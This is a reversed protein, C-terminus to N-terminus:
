RATERLLRAPVGAATVGDALDTVVAAGAGVTAWCGLRQGPRVVSGVGLLTGEGMHVRGALHAGPGVHAFSGIRCDHDITAATNVICHAGVLSDPQVVAGACVLTGEGLVVSPDVWAAPHVASIWRLRPFREALARRRRNDGVAIIAAQGPLVRLEDIIGRVPVGLVTREQAAPDDDFLGWVHWGAARLTSIVVKAHGGAGLVAVPHDPDPIM